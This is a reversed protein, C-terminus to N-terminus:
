RKRGLLADELVRLQTELSADVIGFPTEVRCGGGEIERDQVLEIEVHGGIEDILRGREQQVRDFDEPRLHVRIRGEHHLGRVAQVVLDSATQEVSEIERGLIKRAIRISLRVLDDRTRDKREAEKRGADLVKETWEALGAAYGEDHAKARLSEAEARAAALIREAEGEASQRLDRAIEQASAVDKKIVRGPAMDLRPAGDGHDADGGGKLIRSSM